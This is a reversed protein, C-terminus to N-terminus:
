PCRSSFRFLERLHAADSIFTVPTVNFPHATHRRGTVTIAGRITKLDKSQCRPSHRVILRDDMRASEEPQVM